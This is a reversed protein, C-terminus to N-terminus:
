EAFYQEAAELRPTRVNVRRAEALADRCIARPEEQTPSTQASFNIRAIALHTSAWAIFSSTLWVPARLMALSAWNRRVNVGRAVLVPILERAALLGERFAARSGMMKSLSGLRVGQSHLGANFIFHILLWSRFDSREQIRLGAQRFVQRVAQERETPPTDFTGFTVTPLLGLRLVGDAGIGGGAGPFGWAVQDAPLDRILDLPEAWLNSFILITAEGIRTRLFELAEPLRHHSISVVILDFDHDADLEERYRVPWSEVVRRGLPNRRADLLDLDITDGYEAARGPRVYFEVEHGARELAWGYVTSIPGRGFMLIRM